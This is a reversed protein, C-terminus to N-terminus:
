ASSSTYAQAWAALGNAYRVPVRGPRSRTDTRGALESYNAMHAFPRRQTQLWNQDQTKLLRPVWGEPHRELHGVWTDVRHNLKASWRDQAQIWKNAERTRRARWAAASEGVWYFVGSAKGLMSTQLADVRDLLSRKWSCTQLPYHCVPWVARNLLVLKQRMHGHFKHQGM